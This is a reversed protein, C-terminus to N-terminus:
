AVKKMPGGRRVAVWLYDRDAEILKADICEVQRDDVWAIGKLADLVTKVANDLDPRVRKAYHVRVHVSAWADSTILQGRHLQALLRIRLMCERTRKPKIRRVGRADTMAREYGVVRIPGEFALTTTM